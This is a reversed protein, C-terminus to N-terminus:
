GIRRGKATPEEDHRGYSRTAARAPALQALAKQTAGHLDSLVLLLARDRRQAEGLHAQFRIRESESLVSADANQIRTLLDQREDLRAELTGLDDVDLELTALQEALALLAGAASV